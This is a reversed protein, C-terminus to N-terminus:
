TTAEAKFIEYFTVCDLNLQRGTPRSSRSPIKSCLSLAYTVSNSCQTSEPIRIERGRNGHGEKGHKGIEVVLCLFHALEEAM